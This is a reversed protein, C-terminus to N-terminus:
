TILFSLLGMLAEEPGQISEKAAEIAEAPIDYKELNEELTKYYESKLEMKFDGKLQKTLVM